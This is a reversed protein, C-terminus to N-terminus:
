AGYWNKRALNFAELPTCDANFYGEWSVRDEEIKYWELMLPYHEKITMKIENAWIEYSIM